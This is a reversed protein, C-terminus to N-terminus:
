LAINTTHISIIWIMININAKLIANILTVHKNIELNRLDNQNKKLKYKTSFILCFIAAINNFFCACYVTVVLVKETFSELCKIYNSEFIYFWLKYCLQFNVCDSTNNFYLVKFSNRECFFVRENTHYQVGTKMHSTHTIGTSM